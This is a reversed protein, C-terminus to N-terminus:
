KKRNTVPLDRCTPSAWLLGDETACVPTGSVELASPPTRELAVRALREAPAPTDSTAGDDAFARVFARDPCQVLASAPALSVDEITCGEPLPTDVWAGRASIVLRESGGGVVHALVAGSTLLKAGAFACGGELVPAGRCPLKAHIESASRSEGIAGAAVHLTEGSAFAIQNAPSPVLEITAPAFTTEAFVRERGDRDVAIVEAGRKGARVVAGGAETRRAACIPRPAKARPDLWAGRCKREHVMGIAIGARGLAVVDTVSRDLYRADADSIPWRRAASAEFDWASVGEPPEATVAAPPLESAVFRATAATREPPEDAGRLLLENPGATGASRTLRVAVRHDRVLDLVTAAPAGPTAVQLALHDPGYGGGSVFAGAVIGKVAGTTPDVTAITTGISGWATLRLAGKDVRRDLISRRAGAPITRPLAGTKRLEALWADRVAKAEDCPLTANAWPPRKPNPPGVDVCGRPPYLLADVQPPPPAPPTTSATATPTASASASPREPSTARRPPREEHGGCAFLVLAVPGLVFPRRMSAPYVSPGAGAGPRAGGIGSIHLM